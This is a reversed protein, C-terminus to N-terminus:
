ARPKTPTKGTYWATHAASRLIDQIRYWTENPSNQKDLTALHTNVADKYAQIQDPLKSVNLKRTGKTYNAEWLTYQELKLSTKLLKHDSTLTTGAYSIANTILHKQRYTVIIYDIQNFVNVLKGTTKDRWQGTWTTIQRSPHNFVRNTIFLKYYECFEILKDGNSNRKGKSFRGICKEGLKQGAKANFDGALIVLERKRISNFTENLDKYFQEIEDPYKEVRQSTPAYVNIISILPSTKSKKYVVEEVKIQLVCM